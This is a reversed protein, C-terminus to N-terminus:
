RVKHGVFGKQFAMENREQAGELMKHILLIDTEPPIDLSYLTGNKEGWTTSEYTCGLKCLKELADDFRNYDSDDRYLMYTSHGSRKWAADFILRDCEPDKMAKILDLYSINKAYFPSNLVRYVVGGPIAVPETWFGEWPCGHWESPDLAFSVRVLNDNSIVPRPM